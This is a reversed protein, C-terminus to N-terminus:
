ERVLSRGMMSASFFNMGQLAAASQM